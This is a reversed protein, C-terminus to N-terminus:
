FESGSIVVLAACNRHLSVHACRINLAAAPVLVAVGDTAKRPHRLKDRFRSGILATAWPRVPIQRRDDASLHAHGDLAIALHITRGEAHIRRTMQPIQQGGANPREGTIKMPQDHASLVAPNLTTRRPIGQGQPRPRPQQRLGIVISDKLLARRNIRDSLHQGSIRIPHLPTQRLRIRTQIILHLIVLRIPVKHPTQTRLITQAKPKLVTLMLMHQHDRVTQRRKHWHIRRRILRHKTIRRIQLQLLLIHMPKIRREPMRHTLHHQIIKHNLGRSGIQRHRSLRRSHRRPIIQHQILPLLPIKYSTLTLRLRFSDQLRPALVSLTTHTRTIQATQLRSTPKGQRIM